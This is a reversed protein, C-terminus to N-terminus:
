QQPNDAIQQAECNIPELRIRRFNTWSVPHGVDYLPVNAFEAMNQLEACVFGEVHATLSDSKTRKGTCGNIILSPRYTNLRERFCQQIDEQEWLTRWVNDRLMKWDGKLRKKHIAYLSTQFQIPNSIIVHCGPKILQQEEIRSLVTGLWRDINDGTSGCGPAKPRTIDGDIYEDM